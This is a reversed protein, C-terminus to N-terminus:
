SAGQREALEEHVVAVTVDTVPVYLSGRDPQMIHIVRVTKPGEKYIAPSRLIGQCSDIFQSAAFCTHFNVPKNKFM